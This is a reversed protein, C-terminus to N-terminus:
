IRNGPVERIRLLISLWQVTVDPKAACKANPKPRPWPSSKQQSSHQECEPDYIHFIIQILLWLCATKKQEQTEPRTSFEPSVHKMGFNNFVVTKGSVYSIIGQEAKKHVTLRADNTSLWAYSSCIEGNSSTYDTSSFEVQIKNLPETRVACYINSAIYKTHTM